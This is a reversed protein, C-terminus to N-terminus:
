HGKGPAGQVHEGEVEGGGYFTNVKSRGGVMPLGLYKECNTLFCILKNFVLQNFNLFKLM